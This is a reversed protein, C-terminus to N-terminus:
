FIFKGNFFGILGIVLFLFEIVDIEDILWVDMEVRFRVMVLDIFFFICCFILWILFLGLGELLMVILCGFVAVLFIFEREVVIDVRLWIFIDEIFRLIVVDIFFFVLDIVCRFIGFVELFVDLFFIFVLGWLVFFVLVLIVIYLIKSGICVCISLKVVM